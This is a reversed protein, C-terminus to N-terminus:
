MPYYKQVILYILVVFVAVILLATAIGLTINFAKNFERM